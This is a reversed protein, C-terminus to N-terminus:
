EPKKVQGNKKFNYIISAPYGEYMMGAKLKMETKDLQIIALSFGTETHIPINKDDYRKFYIVASTDKTKPFSWNINRKVVPCDKQKDIISYSGMNNKSNFNWESGIFCSFDAENFIKDKIKGTAGETIITELVWNGNM